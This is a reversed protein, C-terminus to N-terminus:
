SEAKASEEREIHKLWTSAESETEPYKEADDFWEIAEAPKKQSYFAIGMLLQAQGPDPLDGKAIAQQLATTAEEWRERQIHVEALRM